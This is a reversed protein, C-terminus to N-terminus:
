LLKSGSDCGSLQALLVAMKVSTATLVENEGLSMMIVSLGITCECNFVVGTTVHFLELQWFYGTSIHRFLLTNLRLQSLYTEIFFM